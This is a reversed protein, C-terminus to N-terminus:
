SSPKGNEIFRYNIWGFSAGSKGAVTSTMVRGQWAPVLLICAKSDIDKLEITTIKKESFFAMDFGYTGKSYSDNMQKPNKNASPSCGSLFALLVVM